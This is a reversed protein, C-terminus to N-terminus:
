HQRKTMWVRCQNILVKVASLKRNACQENLLAADSFLQTYLVYTVWVTYPWTHNLLVSLNILLNFAQPPPVITCHNASDGWLNPTRIEAKAERHPIKRPVGTEEWTTLHISWDYNFHIPTLTFKTQRQTNARRYAPMPELLGRGGWFQILLYLFHM